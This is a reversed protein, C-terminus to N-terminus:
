VAPGTGGSGRFCVTKIGTGGSPMRGSIRERFRISQIYLPAQCASIYQYKSKIFYPAKTVGRYTSPTSGPLTVMQSNDNGAISNVQLSSPLSFDFNNKTIAAYRKQLIRTSSDVAGQVSFFPNSPKFTVPILRCGPLTGCNGDGGVYVGCCTESGSIDTACCYTSNFSQTGNSLNTPYVYNNGAPPLDPDMGRRGDWSAVGGNQGNHNTRVSSLLQNQEYLKVRAKLYAAGTTYYNKKLLTQSSRPRPRRTPNVIAVPQYNSLANRIVNTSADSCCQPDVYSNPLYTKINSCCSSDVAQGAFSAIGGPTWMVNNLSAKGTIHGQNPQLQKRWHKIPNLPGRNGRNGLYIGGGLRLSSSPLGRFAREYCPQQGACATNVSLNTQPQSSTPVTANFIAARQGPFVVSGQANLLNVSKWRKLSWESGPYIQAPNSNLRPVYNLNQDNARPINLRSM